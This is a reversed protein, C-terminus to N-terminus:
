KQNNEESQTSNNSFQLSQQARIGYFASQITHLRIPVDIYLFVAASSSSSM